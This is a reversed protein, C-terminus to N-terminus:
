KRRVSRFFAGAAQGWRERAGQETWYWIAAKAPAASITVDCGTEDLKWHAILGALGDKLPFIDNPDLAGKYIRVDGILGTYVYDPSCTRDAGINLHGNGSAPSSNWTNRHVPMGDLYSTMWEGSRVVAIQHWGGAVDGLDIGTDWLAGPHHVVVKRQATSDFQLTWHNMSGDPDTKSFIGAWIRQSAAPNIWLLFTYDNALQLKTDSDGTRVYDDLGDFQLAGSGDPGSATQWTPGNYLVGANGNGSSDDATEALYHRVFLGGLVDLGDADGNILVRNGVVALGTIQLHADKEIILDGTVYLAPLNKAAIIINGDGQVTLDGKVLLMGTIEVNGTITLDGNRYCISTGAPIDGPGITQEYIYSKPYDPESTFDDYRVRPWQLSLDAVGYIQGEVFGTPDNSAFVDGYIKGQNTLTGGCYVDGNIQVSSWLTTDGGAWFAICPDLRLEASLSSRGIEQGSRLRYSNCDILYNCHDTPDSDDRVVAVDYYDSSGTTLQLARDGKWYESDVDQPNLILGKAHELGSAALHDMQARLGMNRGCALEVDSESLFGLSLITIAMIVFLVVLM